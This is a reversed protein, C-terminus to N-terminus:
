PLKTIYAHIILDNAIPLQGLREKGWLNTATPSIGARQAHLQNKM